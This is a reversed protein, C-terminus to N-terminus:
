ENTRRLRRAYVVARHVGLATERAELMAITKDSPKFEVPEFATFGVPEGQPYPPITSIDTFEM